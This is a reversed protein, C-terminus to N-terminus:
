KELAKQTTRKVKSSRLDPLKQLKETIDSEEPIEIKEVEIVYDKGEVPRLRGFSHGVKAFIVYAGQVQLPRKPDIRGFGGRGPLGLELERSRVRAKVNEKRSKETKYQNLEVDYFDVTAGTHVHAVKFSVKGIESIPKLTAKYRLAPQKRRKRLKKEINFM